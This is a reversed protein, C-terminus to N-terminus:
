KNTTQIVEQKISRTEHNTEDLKQIVTEDVLLQPLTSLSNILVNTKLSASYSKM